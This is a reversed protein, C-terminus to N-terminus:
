TTLLKKSRGIVCKLADQLGPVTRYKVLEEPKIWTSETHEWDIVIKKPKKMSFLFPHIIWRRGLKTDVVQLPRGKVRLEVDSKDLGTEEKIETYAQVLYGAEVYGSVGAWRGRYSGVKKSRRLILIKGKHELFCTVVHKEDFSEADITNLCTQLYEKLLRLTAEAANQKNKERNGRFYYKRSFSANKASLGLYFLGVPKGPTTGTPGAIGTDSICIDVNLSKRGGAAMEIATKASVAGFTKLTKEKVGVVSAKIENSYAVISGKYYDSSGSINTIRDSIRGGTASEVTGISLSKGTKAQYQQILEAIESELVAM